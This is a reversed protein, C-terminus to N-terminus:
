NGKHYIQTKNGCMVCPLHGRVTKFGFGPIGCGPCSSGIRVALKEALEALTQMRTPNMMARMDTAIFLDHYHKFGDCLSAQLRDHTNIGKDLVHQKDGSQLTLAHSPFHVSALFADLLTDQHLLMMNYNTHPTVLHEAIVCDHELDVFVMIEHAHPIFPNSPHPGFSGESALSLPYNKEHAAQKAKLICTEYPSLPRPIEGTFTGFQDTDIAEVTLHCGLHEQFVPRIVQEKKHKSALLVFKDQYM